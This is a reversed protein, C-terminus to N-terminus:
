QTQEKAVLLHGRVATVRVGSNGYKSLEVDFPYSVGADLGQTDAFDLIIVMQNPTTIGLSAAAVQTDNYFYIGQGGVVVDNHRKSFTTIGTLMSVVEDTEPDRVTFKADYSTIDIVSGDSDVFQYELNVTDGQVIKVDDTQLSYFDDSM